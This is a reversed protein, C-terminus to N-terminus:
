KSTFLLHPYKATTTVTKIVLFQKFKQELEGCLRLPRLSPNGRLREEKNAFKSDKRNSSYDLKRILFLSLLRKITFSAEL